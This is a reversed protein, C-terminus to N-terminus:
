FCINVMFTGPNVRVGLTLLTVTLAVVFPVTFNVATAKPPNLEDTVNLTEPKGVPILPLKLGALRAAGPLPVDVSVNVLPDPATVPLECKVTAAM